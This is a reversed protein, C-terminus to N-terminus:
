PRAACSSNAPTLDQRGSSDLLVVQSPGDTHRGGAPVVILCWVANAEQPTVGPRLSVRVIPHDLLNGPQYDVSQISPSKFAVISQAILQDAEPACATVAVVALLLGSVRLFPAVRQPSTRRSREPWASEEIGRTQDHRCHTLPQFSWTGTLTEGGWAALSANPRSWGIRSSALRPGDSLHQKRNRSGPGPAGSSASATGHPGQRPPLDSAVDIPGCRSRRISSHDQAPMVEWQGRVRASAELETWRRAALRTRGPDEVGEHPRRLIGRLVFLVVVYIAIGAREPVPHVLLGHNPITVYVAGAQKSV